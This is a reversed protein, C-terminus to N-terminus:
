SIIVKRQQICELIIGIKLEELPEIPPEIPDNNGEDEGKSQMTTRVDHLVAEIININNNYVLM